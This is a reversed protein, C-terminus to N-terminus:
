KQEKMEIDSGEQLVGKYHEALKNTVKSISKFQDAQLEKDVTEMAHLIEKLINYIMAINRKNVTTTQKSDLLTQLSNELAKQLKNLKEESQKVQLKLDENEKKIVQVEEKTPSTASNSNSPTLTSCGVCGCVIFFIPFFRM